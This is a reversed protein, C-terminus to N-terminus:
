NLYWSDDGGWGKRRQFRATYELSDTLMAASCRPSAAAEGPHATSAALSAVDRRGGGLSALRALAECDQALRANLCRLARLDAEIAPRRSVAAAWEREHRRLFHAHLAMDVRLMPRLSLRQAASPHAHGAAHAGNPHHTGNPAAGVVGEGHLKMPLYSLEPLTLNLGVQWFPAREAVADCRAAVLALM